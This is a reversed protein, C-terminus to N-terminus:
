HKVGLSGRLRRYSEPTDMDELIDGCEVAIVNDPHQQIISKAGAPGNLKKLQGFFSKDFLVPVGQWGSASRSVIIQQSGSQFIQLMKELHSTSVLPQDLLTILVGSSGTFAKTLENIGAAISSGMGNEWQTNIVINVKLKEVVPFILDADSGLVVLVPQGSNMLTRVQHEILSEKGWPLLQKPQGMRTSSGAALLLLPIEAM